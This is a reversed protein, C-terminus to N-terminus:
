LLGKIEKFFAEKDSSLGKFERLVSGKKDAVIFVNSHAYIYNGEEGKNYQLEFTDALNRITQADSTLVRFHSGTIRYRALFERLEEPHKRHDEFTFIVFVGSKSFNKNTRDFSRLDNMIIPCSFGCDKFVFSSIINKDAFDQLSVKQGDQDIFTGTFQHINARGPNLKESWFNRPQGSSITYWVIYGSAAMLSTALIRIAWLRLSKASKM